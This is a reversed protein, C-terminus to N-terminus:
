GRGAGWWTAAAASVEAADPPLWEVDPDNRFWTLQRKAFQRTARAMDAQAQELSCLGRVFAGIERYGLSSLASLDASYGAAFLRQVEDVLGAAIMEACRADIRRYIEARPIELGITKMDVAGRAFAHERQLESIPRGTLTQVELARVLRVRDNRHIRAAAEPDLGRLRQYLIGPDADEEAELRARLAPDRKPGAFLGGRLVKVYLGTGGVVLVRRGRASIADIARLALRHFEAADFPEDPDVVDILHHPAAAQEARSPKASGIDLGRFVQRSDANVIEANCARAVAIALATKGTATPGVLAVVRPLSASM